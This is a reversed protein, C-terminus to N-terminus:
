GELRRREKPSLSATTLKKHLEPDYIQHAVVLTHNAAEDLLVQPETHRNHVGPGQRCSIRVGRAQLCQGLSLDEGSRGFYNRLLGKNECSTSLLLTVAARNLSPASGGQAYPGPLLGTCNISTGCGRQADKPKPVGICSGAYVPLRKSWLPRLLRRLGPLSIFLDDDAKVFWCAAAGAKRVLLQFGKLTKEFLTCRSCVDVPFRDDLTDSVVAKNNAQLPRLWTNWASAALAHRTHHTALFIALTDGAAGAEVGQSAPLQSTTQRAKLGASEEPAAGLAAGLSADVSTVYTAGGGAHRRFVNVNKKLYWLAASEQLAASQTADHHLGRSAMQEIVWERPRLNVHGVGGQHLNAWSLVVGIRANDVVNALFTQEFEQPIHEGVEISFVWDAPARLPQSLDARAVAGASMEEVGEAGDFASVRVQQQAFAHAYCGKGAGLDVLTGGAVLATVARVISLDLLYCKAPELKWAGHEGVKESFARSANASRCDVVTTPFLKHDDSKSNWHPTCRPPSAWETSHLSTACLASWPFAVAAAGYALTAHVLRM